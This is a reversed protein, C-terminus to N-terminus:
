PRNPVLRTMPLVAHLENWSHALNTNYVDLHELAEFRGLVEVVPRGYSSSSLEARTLDLSRLTAALPLLAGLDDAQLHTKPHWTRLGFKLTTLRPLTAITALDARTLPVDSLDLNELTPHHALAATCAPSPHHELVLSRLPVAALLAAIGRDTVHQCNALDLHTLKSGHLRALGADTIPQGCLRLSELHENEALVALSDDTVWANWELYRMLELRRAPMRLLPTATDKVTLSVFDLPESREIVPEGVLRDICRVGFWRLAPLSLVQSLTSAKVDGEGVLRVKRLRPHNACAALALEIADIGDLDLSEFTDPHAAALSEGSMRKNILAVELNAVRRAVLHGLIAGTLNGTNRIAFSRVSSAIRKVCADTIGTAHHLELERLPLRATAAVVEDDIGRIGDLGLKRLPPLAAIDDVTPGSDGMVLEELRPLGRAIALIQAATCASKSFALARLNALTPILEHDRDSGDRTRFTLRRLRQTVPTGCITKVTDRQNGGLSIADVFGSRWSEELIPARHDALEPWVARRAKQEAAAVALDDPARALAHQLSILEGQPDGAAILADALVLYRAEDDPDDDIAARLAEIM